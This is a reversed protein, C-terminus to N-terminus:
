PASFIEKLRQTKFKQIFDDKFKYEQYLSQLALPNTRYRLYEARGKEGEHNKFFADIGVRNVLPLNKKGVYNQFAVEAAKEAIKDMESLKSEIDDKFASKAVFPATVIKSEIVEYPPPPPTIVPPAWDFDWHNQKDKADSELTPATPQLEVHQDIYHKIIYRLKETTEACGVCCFLNSSNKAFRPLRFKLVKLSKASPKRNKDVIDINTDEYYIKPIKIRTGSEIVATSPESTSAIDKSQNKISEVRENVVLKFKLNNVYAKGDALRYFFYRKRSRGVYIFGIENCTELTFAFTLYYFIPSM